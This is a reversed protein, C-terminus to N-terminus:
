SSHHVDIRRKSRTEDEVRAFSMDAFVHDAHFRRWGHLNQLFKDVLKLGVGNAHRYLDPISIGMGHNHYLFPHQQLDDSFSVVLLEEKVLRAPSSAFISNQQAHSIGLFAMDGQKISSTDLKMSEQSMAQLVTNKKRKEPSLLCPRLGPPPPPVGRFKQYPHAARNELDQGLKLDFYEM